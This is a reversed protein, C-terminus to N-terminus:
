RRVRSSATSGGINSHNLAALVEAEREFRATRDRDHRIGRATNQHRCRTSGRITRGGSGVWEGPVSQPSSRMPVSANAQLWQAAARSCEAMGINATRRLPPIAYMQRYLKSILM